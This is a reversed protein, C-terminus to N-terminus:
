VKEGLALRILYENVSYKTLAAAEIIKKWESDTAKLPRTRRREAKEVFGTIKASDKPVYWRGSIPDQFADPYKGARCNKTVAQRSIGKIKAYEVAELFGEPATLSANAWAKRM